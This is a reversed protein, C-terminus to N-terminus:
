LEAPLPQEVPEAAVAQVLDVRRDEMKVVTFTVNGVTVRPTEGEDPIRGLLDTILGGLTDYDESEELDLGFLEDVEELDTAGDILYSGDPQLRIEEEENDYEDQINGFIEEVLDELTVLGATGGYEDVVIAMHAKRETFLRFLESCRNSEPVYLASHIFDTIRADAIQETRLLALFDKVYLIGVVNDIANEYVPIRSFGSETALDVVEGVTATHPVAKMETRHTMVDGATLDDFEFINNIMEKESEELLGSEEGADVLELLDEETIAESDTSLSIGFPRSLLRAFFGCPLVIPLLLLSLPSLIPTLKAAVTEEKSQAVRRPLLQSLLLFLLSFVAALILRSWWVQGALVAIVGGAVAAAVQLLRMAAFFRQKTDLAKRLRGSAPDGEEELRKVQGDGLEDVSVEGAAAIAAVLLPLIIWFALWLRSDADM